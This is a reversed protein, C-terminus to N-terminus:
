KKWFVYWPTKKSTKKNVQHETNQTKDKGMMSAQPILSGANVDEIVQKLIDEGKRIDELVQMRAQWGEKVERKESEILLDIYDITSLPNPKLAIEDLRNLIRGSEELLETICKRGIEIDQELKRIVEKVTLQKGTADKYREEIDKYTRTVNERYYEFRFDDVSHCGSSCQGPCATCDGSWTM